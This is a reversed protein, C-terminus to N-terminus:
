GLYTWRDFSEHRHMIQGQDIVMDFEGAPRRYNDLESSSFHASESPDSRVRKVIFWGLRRSWGDRGLFCSALKKNAYRRERVAGFTASPSCSVVREASIM